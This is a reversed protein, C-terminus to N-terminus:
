LEFLRAANEGLLKARVSEKLDLERWESLARGIDFAPWDTGFLIQDQLLSDMFKYMVEWGGGPAAVYKPALGGFELFVNRHKRAVAVMETTWPWGAHSAVLNLRPFACAIEDLLMPHDNGFPLTTGYNIGTHVFVVLGLEAAKAYVPYLRSDNIALHFFAPQVTIGLLGREACEAVQEVTRMIDASRQQSVTGVGRYRGPQDAVMDAVAQNMQDAYEGFEYEAHVLAVNVGCEDLTADLESRGADERDFGALVAGYGEALGAPREHSDERLDVPLRVRSDVIM